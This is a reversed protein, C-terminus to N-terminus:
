LPVEELAKGDLFDELRALLEWPEFPKAILETCGRKALDLVLDKENSHTLAIAPLRVGLRNLEDLLKLGSMVPMRIDTVLLSFMEGRSRADVIKVLAEMGNGAESVEYGARKLVVSASFRFDADDDVLLLKTGKIV